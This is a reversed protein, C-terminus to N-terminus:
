DDDMGKQVVESIEKEGDEAKRMVIRKCNDAKGDIRVDDISYVQSLFSYFPSIFFSSSLPGRTM